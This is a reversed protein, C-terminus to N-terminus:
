FNTSTYCSTILPQITFVSNATVFNVQEEVACECGCDTANLTINNISRTISNAIRRANVTCVDCVYLYKVVIDVKASLLLVFCIGSM